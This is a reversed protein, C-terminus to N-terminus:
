NKKRWITGEKTDELIIGQDELEKRIADAKLYDKRKKSEIRLAIQEEIQERSVASIEEKSFSLCFVDAIENLVDLAYALKENKYPDDSDFTVHCKNVMEFLVALGKPMNFDDDMAEIFEQRLDGTQGLGWQKKESQSKGYRNILKDRLITIRKYAKKAEEMRDWSFDISSSYHAQLYFIKLVDASCKDLVDAITVFNGASKAMKQKNITLLGHHIWYNAFPKGTYAQSQACENEHHPFVLDQGGGHIDLTSVDLYKQSMVSCEIHWGPRGQGWPSPWSPEDPKVSKWLAFDLPDRKNNDNDIRVSELLEDIKKGSLRGYEKFKRVSFYVSGGSEYAYGDSILKEIYAIMESINETAKPEIDAPNIQMRKLDQYYSDIYTKRISDFAESLSSDSDKSLLRAKNIIKDDVDTINRVFVVNYNKCDRLYRRIVEFVYLSRAHGIHCHDYVTVGCTYIKVNDGVLPVFAQKTKTLSNYIHLM